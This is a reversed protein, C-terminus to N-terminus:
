TNSTKELYMQYHPLLTEICVNLQINNLIGKESKFCM